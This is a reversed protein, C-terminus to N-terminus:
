PMGPFACNKTYRHLTAVIELRNITGILREMRNVYSQFLEIPDEGGKIACYGAAYAEAETELMGKPTAYWKDFARCSDFREYQNRHTAEHVTTAQVENAPIAHTSIFSYGKGEFCVTLGYVETLRSVMVVRTSDTQAHCAPSFALALLLLLAARM